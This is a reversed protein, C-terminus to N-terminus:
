LDELVNKNDKDKEPFERIKSEYSISFNVAGFGGTLCLEIETRLTDWKARYELESYFIARWYDEPKDKFRDNKWNIEDKKPVGYKEQLKLKFDVFDTIHRNEDGNYRNFLEYHAAILKGKSFEYTLQMPRGMLEVEYFLCDDPDRFMSVFPTHAPKSDESSAVEKVYMGWKTKRFDFKEASESNASCSLCLICSVLILSFSIESLRM